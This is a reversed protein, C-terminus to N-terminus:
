ADAQDFTALPVAKASTTTSYRLYMSSYPVLESKGSYAVVSDVALEADLLSVM